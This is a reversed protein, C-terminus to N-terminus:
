VVGARKWLASSREFAEERLEDQDVKTLRGNEVTIEGNVMVYRAEHNRGSFILAAVPDSQAGAYSIDDLSWLNLDAAKGVELSGIDDAWHLVQAG